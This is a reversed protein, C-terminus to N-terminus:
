KARLAVVTPQPSRAFASAIEKERKTPPVVLGGGANAQWVTALFYDDGYRKFVLKDTAPGNPNSTNYVIVGASKSREFEGRLLLIGRSHSVTYEGAPLVSGGIHFDFPITAQLKVNQAPLSFSALAALLTATLVSRFM